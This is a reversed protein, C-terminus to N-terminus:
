SRIAYKNKDKRNKNTICYRNSSAQLFYSRRQSASRQVIQIAATGIHYCATVTRQRKKVTKRQDEDVKITSFQVYVFM